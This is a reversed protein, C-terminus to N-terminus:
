FSGIVSFAIGQTFDRPDDKAYVTTTGGSTSTLAYDRTRVTQSRYGLTFTLAGVRMQDRGFSYAIGFESLTYDANLSTANAGDGNGPLTVKMRGIGYTGYASLGSQLPASVSAALTPGAWKYQGGLQQDLQKHGLTLSLGSFIDYGLNFDRESRSGNRAGRANTLTYDTDTMASASVFAQKYRLSVLPTFAVEEGSSITTLVQDTTGGSAVTAIEWSTWTNIWAKTGVTLTWPSPQPENKQQAHSVLPLAMLIACATISRNFKM